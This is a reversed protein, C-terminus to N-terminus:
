PIRLAIGATAYSSAPAGMGVPRLHHGLCFPVGQDELNPNPTPSVVGGRLVQIQRSVELLAGFSSSPQPPWPGFVRGLSM